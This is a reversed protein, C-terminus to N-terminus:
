SFAPLLAMLVDMVVAADGGHKLQVAHPWRAM